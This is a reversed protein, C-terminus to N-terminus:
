DHRLLQHRYRRFAFVSGGLLALGGGIGILVYLLLSSGGGSDDGPAQATSLVVPTTASSRTEPDLSNSRPTAQTVAAAQGSPSPTPSPDAGSPQASPPPQEGATTGASTSAEGSTSTGGGTAAGGGGAPEGSSPPPPPPPTPTPAPAPTATPAPAASVDLRGRMKTPHINCRYYITGSSNFSRQFSQGPYLPGPSWNISCDTFTTDTCQTVTHVSDGTNPYNWTVVDGATLATQCVQGEFSPSCFWDDGIDISVSAAAPQASAPLATLLAVFM